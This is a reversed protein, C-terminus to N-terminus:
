SVGPNRATRVASGLRPPAPAFCTYRYPLERGTVQTIEQVCCSFNGGVASGSKGSVPLNNGAEQSPVVDHM